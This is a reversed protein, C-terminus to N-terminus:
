FRVTHVDESLNNRLEEAQHVFDGARDIRPSGRWRLFLKEGTPFEEPAVLVFDVKTSSAVASRFFNEFYKELKTHLTRRVAVHLKEMEDCLTGLTSLGTM